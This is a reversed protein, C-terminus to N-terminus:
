CYIYTSVNECLEHFIFGVLWTEMILLLVCLSVIQIKTSKPNLYQKEKLLHRVTNTHVPLPSDRSGVRPLYFLTGKKCNCVKWQSRLLIVIMMVREGCVIPWCPMSHLFPQKKYAKSIVSFGNM